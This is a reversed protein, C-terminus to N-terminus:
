QVKAASSRGMSGVTRGRLVPFSSKIKNVTMVISFINLINNESQYVLQFLGVLSYSRTESIFPLKTLQTKKCPYFFVFFPDSM